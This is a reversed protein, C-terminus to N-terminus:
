STEAKRVADVYDAIRTDIWASLCGLDCFHKAGDLPPKVPVAISYNVTSPLPQCSLELRFAPVVGTSTIDASCHDCTVTITHTM